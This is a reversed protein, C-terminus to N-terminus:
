KSLDYIQPYIKICVDGNEGFFILKRSLYLAANHIEKKM